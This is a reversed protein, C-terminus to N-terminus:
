GKNCGEKAEVLGRVVENRTSKKKSRVVVRRYRTQCSWCKRMSAVGAVSLVERFKSGEISPKTKEGDGISEEEVEQVETRAWHVLPWVRPDVSSQMASVSAGGQRLKTGALKSKRQVGTRVVVSRRRSRRSSAELKM